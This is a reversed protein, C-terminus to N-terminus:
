KREPPTMYTLRSQRLGMKAYVECLKLASQAAELVPVNYGEALLDHKIREAVDVFGTCGMVIAQAGDERIALLSQEVLAKCLKEHDQLEEVPINVNRISVIRGNLKAKSVNGEMLSVVNPMVTVISINDALGLAFHTAPEFGGFVPIDVYERAAKVAPDGFCNIFIAQFGDEEGQKALRLVDPAALAEDYECEISPPGSTIQYTQVETDPELYKCMLETMLDGGNAKVSLIAKGIKQAKTVCGPVLAERMEAKNMGWTSFGIRMDYLMCLARAIQEGSHDSVPYVAVEDGHLSGLGMPKPPHNWYATLTTNLEPCARGNCDVDVMKIRKAPDKDSLIAVLMPTFTNFGGMEGSQLYKVEKGEAIFAKQFAKFAHVADPGFAPKSPDLMAVPSGLGCVVAAYENDGIEDLDLLDVEIANGDKKLGDLMGLGQKLSGGGGAGLLTAGYLIEIIDQEYLKRM